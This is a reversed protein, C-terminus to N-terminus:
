AWPGWVLLRTPKRWACQYQCMDFTILRFGELKLLKRVARTKWLMSTAPNELYGSGGRGAHLRIWRIASRFMYNHRRVLAQDKPDLDLLGMLFQNSRVASPFNSHRPARRARSWTCCPLDVGLFRCRPVLADVDPALSRLSLDNRKDRELDFVVAVGGRAAFSKALNGVGGYLSLFSEGCTSRTQPKIVSFNAVHLPDVPCSAM